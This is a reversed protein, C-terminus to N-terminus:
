RIQWNFGVAVTKAVDEAAESESRSWLLPSSPRSSKLPLTQVCIKLYDIRASSFRRQRYAEPTSAVIIVLCPALTHAVVVKLEGGQIERTFCSDRNLAVEFTRNSEGCIRVAPQLQRTSRSCFIFVAFFVRVTWVLISEACLGHRPDSFRAWCTLPCIDYYFPILVVNSSASM